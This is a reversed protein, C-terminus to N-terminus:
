RRLWARMAQDQVCSAASKKASVAFLLIDGHLAHEPRQDDRRTVRQKPRGACASGHTNDDLHEIAPSLGTMADRLGDFAIAAAIIDLSGSKLHHRVGLATDRAFPCPLPTVATDHLTSAVVVHHDDTASIRWRLSKRGQASLAPQVSPPLARKRRRRIRMRRSPPGLRSTQSSRMM